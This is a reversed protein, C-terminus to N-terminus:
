AFKLQQAWGLNVIRLFNHALAHMLLVAKAKLKGRVRLQGLGRNRIQAHFCEITHQRQKYIAKSEPLEMRQRWQAVEASDGKKSGLKKPAVYTICEQQAAWQIDDRNGFDSDALWQKPLRNYRNVHQRMMPSMQGRDNGQDILDIATVIQTETDVATQGNFGPHYSNDPFKMNRSEPDTTSAKVGSIQKETYSTHKCVRRKEQLQNVVDMAENVRENQESAARRRAAEMRAGMAQPSEEVEKKLIEVQQKAQAYIELKDKTKLSHKGAAARLKVGDQAVREMKVLNACILGTVCQTLLADLGTCNNRFDSLTHHNVNVGGCIWRFPASEECMASLMRASGVGKITAWVWLCLLIQPDICPRGASGQRARVKDTFSSLNMKAVLKWVSRVKHESDVLEDICLPRLECQLREPKLMRAARDISPNTKAQDVTGVSEGLLDGM